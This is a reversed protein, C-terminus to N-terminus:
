ELKPMKIAMINQKDCAYIISDRANIAIPVLGNFNVDGEDNPSKKKWITKGTSANVVYLYHHSTFMIMGHAYHIKQTEYGTDDNKWLVQGNDPDLAFLPLDNSKIFLRGAAILPVSRSLTQLYEPM